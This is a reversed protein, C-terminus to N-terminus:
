YALYHLTKDSFGLLSCIFGLLSCIILLPRQSCHMRVLVDPDNKLPQHFKINNATASHFYGSRPDHIIRDALAAKGKLSPFFHKFFITNYDNEKPNQHWPIDIKMPDVECLPPCTSAQRPGANNYTMGGPKPAAEGSNEAIKATYELEMPCTMIEEEEKLIVWDVAEEDKEGYKHQYARAVKMADSDLALFAKVSEGTYNKKGEKTRQQKEAEVPTVDEGESEADQERDYAPEEDEPLLVKKIHKRAIPVADAGSPFLDFKINWVNHKAKSFVLGYFNHFKRNFQDLVARGPQDPLVRIHVYQREVVVRRGVRCVPQKKAAPASSSKGGGSRTKGPRRATTTPTVGVRAGTPPVGVSMTMESVVSGAGSPMRAMVQSLVIPDMGTAITAVGAANRPRSNTM